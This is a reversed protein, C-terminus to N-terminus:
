PKSPAGTTGSTTGAASTSGTKKKPAYTGENVKILVVEAASMGRGGPLDDRLSESSADLGADALRRRVTDGRAALLDSDDLDSSLRITGGYAQVLSILRAVREEGLGSLQPRHPLFHVDSVTMDALLANDTMYVLPAQLDSVDYPTGHPPANLRKSPESCGPCLLAACGAVIMAKRM